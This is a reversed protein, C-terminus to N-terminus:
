SGLFGTKRSIMIGLLPQASDREHIYISFFPQLLQTTYFHLCLICCKWDGVDFLILQVGQDVAESKNGYVVYQKLPNIEPVEYFKRYALLGRDILLVCFLADLKTPFSLLFRYLSSRPLRDTEIRLM